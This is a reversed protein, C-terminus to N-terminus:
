WLSIRPLSYGGRDILPQNGFVTHPGAPMGVGAGQPYLSAASTPTTMRNAMLAPNLTQLVSAQSMAPNAPPPYGGGPGIRLGGGLAPHNMQTWPNGANPDPLGPVSTPSRTPQMVSTPSATLGPDAGTYFGPAGTPTQMGQPQMFGGAGSPSTVNAPDGEILNPRVGISSGTSSTKPGGPKADGGKRAPQVAEPKVGGGVANQQLKRLATSNGFGAAINAARVAMDRANEQGAGGIAPGRGYRAMQQRVLDNYQQQSMAMAFM